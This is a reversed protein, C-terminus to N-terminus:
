NFYCTLTSRGFLFVISRVPNSGAVEANSTSRAIWQALPAFILNSGRKQLLDQVAFSLDALFLEQEEWRSRFEQDSTAKKKCRFENAVIFESKIKLVSQTQALLLRLTDITREARLLRDDYSRRDRWLKLMMLIVLTLIFVFLHDDCCEM